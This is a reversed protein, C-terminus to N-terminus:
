IQLLGLLIAAAGIMDVGCSEEQDRHREQEEDEVNDVPKAVTRLVNQRFIIENLFILCQLAINLTSCHVISM